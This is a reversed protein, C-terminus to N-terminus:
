STFWGYQAFRHRFLSGPIALEGATFPLRLPCVNISHPFMVKHIAGATSEIFAAEWKENVSVATFGALTIGTAFPHQLFSRLYVTLLFLDCDLKRVGPVTLKDEYRIHINKVTVQLNNIIKATLSEWLGQTQKSDEGPIVSILYLILIVFRDRM